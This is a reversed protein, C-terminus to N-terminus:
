FLGFWKKRPKKKTSIEFDTILHDGNVLSRVNQQYDFVLSVGYDKELQKFAEAMHFGRVGDPRHADSAMMHVLRHEIMYRAAAEVESGFVGLYSAATVQAYCGQDVFRRLIGPDEMLKTNREPHVIVPRINRNLLEFIIQYSFEPIENSPFEILLYSNNLDTFLIDGKTINAMLEGHIHVEQSPFVILDIGRRDLEEQLRAVRQNVQDGTNNYDKTHHHPTALIHTIGERRAANAMAIAMDLDKAGDDVGPLIHCHMDIM